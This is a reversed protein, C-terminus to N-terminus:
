KSMSGILNKKIASKAEGGTMSGSDAWAAFATTVIPRWKDIEGVRPEIPPVGVVQIVQASSRIEGNLAAIRPAFEARWTNCIAMERVVIDPKAQWTRRLEAEVTDRRSSIEGNTGGSGTRAEIFAGFVGSYFGASQGMAENFAPPTAIITLIHSLAGCRIAQTESPSEQAFASSFLFLSALIIPRKM